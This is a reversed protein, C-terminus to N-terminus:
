LLVDVVGPLREGGRFFEVRGLLLIAGVALPQGDVLGYLMEAM